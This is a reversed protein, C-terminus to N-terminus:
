KFLEELAEKDLNNLIDEHEKIEAKIQNNNNDNKITSDEEEFIKMLSDTAFYKIESEKNQIKIKEDTNIKNTFKKLNDERNIGLIEYIKDLSGFTDLNYSMLDYDTKEGENKFDEEEVIELFQKIESPSPSSFTSKSKFDDYVTSSKTAKNEDSVRAMKM